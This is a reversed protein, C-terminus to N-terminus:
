TRIKSTSIVKYTGTSKAITELGQWSGLDLVEPVIIQQFHKERCTKYIVEMLTSRVESTVAQLHELWLSQVIGKHFLLPQALFYGLLPSEGEVGEWMAFSWGQPLYHELSEMRWPADWEMLEREIEEAITSSILKKEYELISKHDQPRLIKINM